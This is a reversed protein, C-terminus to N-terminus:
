ANLLIRLPLYSFCFGILFEEIRPHLCKAGFCQTGLFASALGLFIIHTYSSLWAEPTDRYYSFLLVPLAWLVGCTVRVAIQTIPESASTRLVACWFKANTCTEGYSVSMLLWYLPIATVLLSNYGGTFAMGATPLLFVVLTRAPKWGYEWGGYSWLIGMIIALIITM